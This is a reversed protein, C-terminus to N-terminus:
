DSMTSPKLKPGDKGVALAYVPLGKTEEHSKLQFRKTLISRGMSRIQDLTLKRFAPVDASSVKAEIDFRASNAWAPIGTLQDNTNLGYAERIFDQLPINRIQIGDRLLQM